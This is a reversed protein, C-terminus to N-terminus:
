LHGGALSYVLVALVILTVRVYVADGELAFAFVSFVVRAVPTAILLVLGFQIIARSHLSLADTVIGPLQRLDEPEGRFAKYSPSLAGYHALYFAGGVLVIGAALVVGVRLLDGIVRELQEDTWAHNSRRV